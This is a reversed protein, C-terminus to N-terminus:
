TYPREAGAAAAADLLSLENFTECNQLVQSCTANILDFDIALRHGVSEPQTHSTDPDPSAGNHRLHSGPRAGLPQCCPELERDRGTLVAQLEEATCDFEFEYEDDMLSHESYSEDDDDCDFYGSQCDLCRCNDCLSCSLGLIDAAEQYLEFSSKAQQQHQQQSTLLAAPATSTSNDENHMSWNSLKNLQRQESGSGSGYGSGGRYAAERSNSQNKLNGGNNNPPEAENSIAGADEAAAVANSRWKEEELYKLFKTKKAILASKVNTCKKKPMLPLGGAAGAGVGAGATTVGAPGDLSEGGSRSRNRGNQTVGGAASLCSNNHSSAPANNNSSSISHHSTIHSHDQIQGLTQPHTQTVNHCAGGVSCNFLKQLAATAPSCMATSMSTAVPNVYNSASGAAVDVGGEAATTTATATTATGFTKFKHQLVVGGSSCTAEIPNAARSQSGNIERKTAAYTGYDGYAGYSANLVYISNQNNCQFVMDDMTQAM